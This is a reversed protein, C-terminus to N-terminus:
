NEEKIDKKYWIILDDYGLLSCMYEEDLYESECFEEYCVYLEGNYGFEDLYDEYTYETYADILGVFYDQITELEREFSIHCHKWDAKYLEYCMRKIDM